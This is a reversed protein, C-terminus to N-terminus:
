ITLLPFFFPASQNYDAAAAAAQAVVDRERSM